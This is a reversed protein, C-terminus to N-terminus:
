FNNTKRQAADIAQQENFVRPSTRGKVSGANIKNADPVMM